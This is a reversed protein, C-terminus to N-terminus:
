VDLSKISNDIKEVSDINTLPNMTLVLEAINAKKLKRLDQPSPQKHSFVANGLLFLEVNLIHSRLIFAERLCPKSCKEPSEEGLFRATHCKRTMTVPFYDLHVSLDLGKRMLPPFRVFLRPIWDVEVVRVGHSKYFEITPGYDLSTYSFLKEYWRKVFFGGPTLQDVRPYRRVAVLGEEAIKDTWPSRAPVRVMLRGLRPQLNKYHSLINLTGLDNFVIGGNGKEDLYTLLRKTKEIGSNSLRPTVFVFEKKERDVVSYAKELMEPSPLNYECFEPGFRVIDCSSKSAEGLLKFNEAQVAIKV